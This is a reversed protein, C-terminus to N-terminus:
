DYIPNHQIQREVHELSVEYLVHDAHRITDEHGYFTIWNIEDVM